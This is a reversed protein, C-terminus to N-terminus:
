CDGAERWEHGQEADLALRDDDLYAIRHGAHRQLFSRVAPLISGCLWDNREEVPPNWYEHSALLREADVDHDQQVAGANELARYAWRYGADVYEHHDVCAFYACNVPALQRSRTADGETWARRCFFPGIQPQEHTFVMTWDFSSPVVCLDLGCRDFHIPACEGLMFAQGAEGEELVLLETSPEAAYLEAARRGSEARTFNWSFAHWRIGGFVPKGTQEQVARGFTQDWRRWIRAADAPAIEAVSAAAQRALDLPSVRKRM